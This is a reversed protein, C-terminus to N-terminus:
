APAATAEKKRSRSSTRRGRGTATKRAATKRPRRVLATSKPRGRRVARTGSTLDSLHTGCLDKNLSKGDVRIAVTAVAPDGCVDCVLITKEAM